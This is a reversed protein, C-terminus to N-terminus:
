CRFCCRCYKKEVSKRIAVLLIIKKEDKLHCCCYGNIDLISKILLSVFLNWIWITKFLIRYRHIWFQTFMNIKRAYVRVLMSLWGTTFNRIILDHVLIRIIEKQNNTDNREEVNRNEVFKKKQWHNVIADCNVVITLKLCSLLLLINIHRNIKREGDKEWETTTNRCFHFWEGCAHAYVHAILM